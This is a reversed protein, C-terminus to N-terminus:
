GRGSCLSKQPLFMILCVMTLMAVKTEVMKVGTEGTPTVKSDGIRLFGAKTM